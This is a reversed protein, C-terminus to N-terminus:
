HNKNFGKRAFVCKTDTCLESYREYLDFGGRPQYLLYDSVRVVDVGLTTWAHFVKQWEIHDDPWVHLDGEREYRRNVFAKMFVTKAFDFTFLERTRFLLRVHEAVSLKTRRRYEALEANPSWSKENAEHDVYIFGSPRVVRAFERVAHIYDPIHHLVSYCAVVDFSDDPFPINMGDLVTTSLQTISAAKQELLALSRSSVDAAVVHCGRAIFKLTLNGTGAGFDLVRPTDADVLTLLDDVTRQLRNQEVANYIEAHKDDYVAAVKDHARANHRVPAAIADNRKV